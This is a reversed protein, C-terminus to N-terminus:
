IKTTDSKLKVLNKPVKRRKIVCIFKIYTSTYSNYLRKTTAPIYQLTKQGFDTKSRVQEIYKYYHESCWIRKSSSSNGSNDDFIFTSICITHVQRTRIHTHSSIDISPTDYQKCVHISCKENM